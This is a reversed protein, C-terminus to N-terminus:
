RYTVHVGKMTFQNNDCGCYNENQTIIEVRIDTLEM